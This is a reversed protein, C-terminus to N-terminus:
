NEETEGGKLTEKNTFRIKESIIMWLHFFFDLRILIGSNRVSNFLSGSALQSLRTKLM